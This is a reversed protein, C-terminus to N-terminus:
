TFLGPYQISTDGHLFWAFALAALCRGDVDAVYRVAVDNLHFALASVFAYFREVFLFGVKLSRDFGRDIRPVDHIDRESLAMIAAHFDWATVAWAALRMVPLEAKSGIGV